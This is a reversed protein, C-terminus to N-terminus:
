AGRVPQVTVAVHKHYPTRALPDCHESSTLRNIQPGVPAGGGYRMGYGHPVIAVGPRLGEDLEVVVDISGTETTM